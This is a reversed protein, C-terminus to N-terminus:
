SSRLVEDFEAHAEPHANWWTRFVPRSEILTAYGRVACRFAEDAWRAQPGEAHWVITNRQTLPSGALPRIVVGQGGLAVASALCVAGREVLNRATLGDTVQHRIRPTFGAAECARVFALQETNARLPPAVWDDGALDALAIEARGALPHTEPLGVFEPAVLVLRQRLEVPLAPTLGPSNELLLFDLRQQVVQRVLEDSNITVEIPVESCGLSATLQAAWAPVRPGPPGGVRVTDLGPSNVLQTVGETLRDAESLVVRGARVVYNGLDNLRVGDNGRSFLAGGLRREIRQLQATLAPQSIGLQAAAKSLSGADAVACVVRLHRLELERVGSHSCSECRGAVTWSYSACM